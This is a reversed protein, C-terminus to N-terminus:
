ETSLGSVLKFFMSVSVIATNLVKRADEFDRDGTVFFDVNNSIACALFKADKQDRPFDIEARVPKLHTDRTLITEWKHLTEPSFSFKKRNLVEIYERMIESSVIWQWDAPHALLWLILEEPKKDRWVASILVNTDILVKM